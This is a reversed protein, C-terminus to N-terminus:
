ITYIFIGLSKCKSFQVLCGCVHLCYYITSVHIHKHTNAILHIAYTCLQLTTKPPNPTTHYMHHLHARSHHRLYIM